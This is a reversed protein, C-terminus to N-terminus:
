IVVERSEICAAYAGEEFKPDLVVKSIRAKGAKECQETKDFVDKEIVVSGNYIYVLLLIIKIM